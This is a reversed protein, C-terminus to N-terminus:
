PCDTDLKKYVFRRLKQLIHLMIAVLIPRARGEVRVRNLATARLRLARISFQITVRIQFPDIFFKPFPIFIFIM